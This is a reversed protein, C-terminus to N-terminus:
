LSSPLIGATLLIELRMTTSSFFYPPKWMIQLVTQISATTKVASKVAITIIGVM